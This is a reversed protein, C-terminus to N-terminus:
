KNSNWSRNQSARKFSVVRFGNDTAGNSEAERYAAVAATIVAILESEDASEEEALPESAPAEVIPASPKKAKNDKKAFVIKFIGLVGWMLILVFFITAMGQVSVQIAKIWAETSFAKYTQDAAESLARIMNYNLM